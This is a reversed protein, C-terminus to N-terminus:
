VVVFVDPELPVCGGVGDGRRLVLEVDNLSSMSNGSLSTFSLRIGDYM